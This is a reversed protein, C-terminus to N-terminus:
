QQKTKRSTIGTDRQTDGSSDTDPCFGIFSNLRDFSGFRRVDGTELLWQTAAVFDIGPTSLM